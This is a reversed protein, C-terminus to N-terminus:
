KKKFVKDLPSISDKKASMISFINVLTLSTFVTILIYIGVLSHGNNVLGLCILMTSIIIFFGFVQGIRFSKKYYELYDDEFSHRKDQEVEAMELIRNAAGETAYEYEQLIHAPPLISKSYLNSSRGNSSSKYTRNPKKRYHSKNNSM